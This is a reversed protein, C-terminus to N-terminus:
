RSQEHLKVMISDKIFYLWYVVCLYIGNGDMVGKELAPDWDVILSYGEKIHM